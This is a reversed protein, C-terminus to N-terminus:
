ERIDAFDSKKFIHKTSRTDKGIHEKVLNHKFKRDVIADTTLM